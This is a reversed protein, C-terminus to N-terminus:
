FARPCAGSDSMRGELVRVRDGTGCVGTYWDPLMSRAQRDLRARIESRRAGIAPLPGDLVFPPPAVGVATPAPASTTPPAPPTPTPPAPATTPPPATTAAQQCYVVSVYVAGDAGTALGTGMATWAPNTIISRHSSSQQFAAFVSPVDAAAGVVEGVSDCVGLLGSIDAHFLKGAAAQAAASSGAVQDAASLIPLGAGRVSSVQAGVEDALAPAAVVLSLALSLVLALAIRVNSYSVSLPCYRKRRRLAIEPVNVHGRQVARAVM